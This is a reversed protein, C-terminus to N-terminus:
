DDGKGALVNALPLDIARLAAGHRRAWGFAAWEPSFEAFPLFAARRPEDLVWGLLAVPPRLAPDNTWDLAPQCDAPLEVLVADPEWDDLAGLLSRASGPGHHRIGFLEVTM